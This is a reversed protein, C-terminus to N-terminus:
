KGLVLTTADGFGDYSSTVVRDGQELGGLVEFVQPNQKGLRIDRRTATKGDAALVYVWRGGTREYFPGRPLMVCETLDGLELRVHVTQGRRIDPPTEGVFVMDVEFRNSRVEPFIKSVSLPYTGGAFTFEGELGPNVRAIYHEDIAARIKFGDLIDIQGLREGRTKSEGIEASLSTLQGGVPARVFLNELNRRVIALNAQIREVSEELMEIQTSRFLSDQQQTRNTLNRRKVLYEYEDRATEFDNQSILNQGALESNRKYTRHALGIEYDLKVLQGELDLANQQMALRTNRLNNRQEFLQAERNMIDLLLATNSLQLITDGEAVFVGAERVVAEVRGGEIADLYVTRIPLVAGIVPIYEQFQGHEVTSISVRNEDVTRNSRSESVVAIWAVALVALVAAAGFWVPRRAWWKKEIIRDMDAFLAILIGYKYSCYIYYTVFIKLLIHTRYHFL